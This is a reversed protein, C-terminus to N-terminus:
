RPNYLFYIYIWFPVLGGVMMLAILGLGVAGWDVESFSVEPMYSPEPTPTPQPPPTETRVPPTAVTAPPEPQRYTTM